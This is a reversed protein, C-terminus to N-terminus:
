MKEYILHKANQMLNMLIFYDKSVDAKYQGNSNKLQTIYKDLIPKYGEKKNAIKDLIVGAEIMAPMSSGIYAKAIITLNKSMNKDLENKAAASIKYNTSKLKPLIDVLNFISFSQVIPGLTQLSTGPIKVMEMSVGACIFANDDNHRNPSDTLTTWFAAYRNDLLCTVRCFFYESSYTNELSMVNIQSKLDKYNGTASQKINSLYIKTEPDSFCQSESLSNVNLEKVRKVASENNIIFNIEKESSIDRTTNISNLVPQNACSNLVLIIGITALNKFNYMKDEQYNPV